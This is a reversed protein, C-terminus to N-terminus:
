GKRTALETKQLDKPEVKVQWYRSCLEITSFWKARSMQNLSDYIRLLPYLYVDKVTMRNLKRYDVCFRTFGDKKKVLVVDACWPISSSEIVKKALMFEIVNDNDEQLHYQVWRLKEKFPKVDDIEIQHKILSTGGYDADHKSFICAYRNLLTQVKLIHSASLGKICTEYVNILYDPVVSAVQMHTSEHSQQEILTREASPIDDVPSVTAIVTDEYLTQSEPSINIIKLPIIRENSVLSRNVLKKEQKEM